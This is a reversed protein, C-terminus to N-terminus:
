NSRENEAEQYDFNEYLEKAKSEFFDKKELFGKYEKSSLNEWPKKGLINHAKPIYPATWEEQRENMAALYLWPEPMDSEIKNFVIAFENFTSIKRCKTPTIVWYVKAREEMALWEKRNKNKKSFKSFDNKEKQNLSKNKNHYISGVNTANCVVDTSVNSLCVSTGVGGGRGGRGAVHSNEASNALIATKECIEGNKAIDAQLIEVDNTSKRCNEIRIRLPEQLNEVYNQLIEVPFQFLIKNLFEMQLLNVTRKESEFFLEVLKRRKQQHIRKQEKTMGIVVM